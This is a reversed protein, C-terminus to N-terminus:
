WRLIAAAWSYGVGFGVTMVRMGRKLRGAEEARRLAIPISSSVTNGVDQMAFVFKEAPVGLKRRLHDLMYKNAQHFVFLDIDALGVQAAALTQAVIEPVVKLTFNFIEPGNMYLAGSTRDDKLPARFGGRGCILNQAGSGDTGYRLPGIGAPPSGVELLTATGADGFITRLAKDEPSILKTYSDGTLLLVRNAQGTEILGRALGLGYVYGSCGLNFDLAGTRTSLGLRRQLLCATAPLCYDPTQTCFLLFDITSRDVASESFLKEAAAFALDSACQDARVVHRQNVGTKEAIKDVTWEPFLAALDSNTVPQNPVSFAIHRVQSSRAADM